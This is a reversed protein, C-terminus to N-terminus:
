SSWLIQKSFNPIRESSTNTYKLTFHETVRASIETKTSLVDICTDVSITLILLTILQLLRKYNFFAM